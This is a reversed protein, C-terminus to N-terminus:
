PCMLTMALDFYRTLASLGLEFIEEPTNPDNQLINLCYYAVIQTFEHIKPFQHCLAGLVLFGTQPETSLLSGLEAGIESPEIQEELKQCFGVFAKHGASQKTSLVEHHFRDHWRVFTDANVLEINM